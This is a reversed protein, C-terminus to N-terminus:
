WTEEKSETFTDPLIPRQTITEDLESFIEKIVKKVGFVTSFLCIASHCRTLLNTGYFANFHYLTHIFCTAIQMIHGHFM